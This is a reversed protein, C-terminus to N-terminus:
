PEDASREFTNRVISEIASADPRPRLAIETIQFRAGDQLYREADEPDRTELIRKLARAQADLEEVHAALMARIRDFRAGGVQVSPIGLYYETPNRDFRVGVLFKPEV